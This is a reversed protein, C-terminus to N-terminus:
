EDGMIVYVFSLWVEQTYYACSLCIGDDNLIDVGTNYAIGAKCAKVQSILTLTLKSPHHLSLASVSYYYVYGDSDGVVITDYTNSYAMATVPHNSSLVRYQTICKFHKKATNITHIRIHSDYGM